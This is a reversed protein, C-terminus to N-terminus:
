REDLLMKTGEACEIGCTVLNNISGALALAYEGCSYVNKVSINYTEDGTSHRTGYLYTDGVRVGYLGKDCKGLEPTTDYVGDITIDHLKIGSQNLLRVNTCYASARVNKIEVRQIDSCAGEVGFTAELKGCLGTLAVTDDETFGTINEILIDHCGQRLDIGDANKIAVDEYHGRRLGYYVNGDKDVAKDSASFDINGIYGNSCYVFNLAWWRQNYCSIGSVKFGDVNTFLIMNNKWIPPLGNKLHTRESLGNYEGGDLIAEGRGIISICRDTGETTRGLETGHHENVFINDYCGAAQRLHCNELILTFSSPLRIARDIEWAGTVVATRSENKVAEDILTSIHEYGNKSFIKKSM